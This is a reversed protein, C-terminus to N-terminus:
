FESSQDDILVRACVCVRMAHGNLVLHRRTHRRSSCLYLTARPDRGVRPLDQVEDKKAEDEAVGLRIGPGGGGLRGVGARRGGGPKTTAVHLRVCAGQSARGCADLGVCAWPTSCEAARLRGAARENAGVGPGLRRPPGAKSLTLPYRSPRASQRPAAPQRPVQQPPPCAPAYRSLIAFRM